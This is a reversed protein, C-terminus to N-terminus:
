VSLLFFWILSQYPEKQIYCILEPLSRSEWSTERWTDDASLLKVETNPIPVPTGEANNDGSTTWHLIFFACHFNMRVYRAKMRCKANEIRWQTSWTGEFSCLTFGSTLNKKSWIIRLDIQLATLEHKMCFIKMRWKANKM